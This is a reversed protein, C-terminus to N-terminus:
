RRRRATNAPLVLPFQEPHDVRFNNSDTEPVVVAPPPAEAKQDAKSSNCSMSLGGFLLCLAVMAAPRILSTKM